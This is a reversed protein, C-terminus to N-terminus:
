MMFPFARVYRSLDFPRQGSTHRSLDDPIIPNPDLRGNGRGGHNPSRLDALRPHKGKPVTHNERGRFLVIHTFEQRFVQIVSLNDHANAHDIWKSLKGSWDMRLRSLRFRREQGRQLGWLIPISLRQFGLSSERSLCASDSIRRAVRSSCIYRGSADPRNKRLSASGFGVAAVVASIQTRGNSQHM